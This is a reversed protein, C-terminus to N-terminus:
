SNKKSQKVGLILGIPQGSVDSVVFINLTVNWFPSTKLERKQDQKGSNIKRFCIGLLRFTAKQSLPRYTDPAETRDEEAWVWEM